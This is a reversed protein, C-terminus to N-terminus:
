MRREIAWDAVGFCVPACGLVWLLQVFLLWHPFPEIPVGVLAGYVLIPALGICVVGFLALVIPLVFLNNKIHKRLSTKQEMM